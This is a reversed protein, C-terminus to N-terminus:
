HVPWERRRGVLPQEHRYVLLALSRQAEPGLELEQPQELREDDPELVLPCVQSEDLLVSRDSHVWNQHRMM